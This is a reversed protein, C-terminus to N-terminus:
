RITITVPDIGPADGIVIGAHITYTGPPVATEGLTLQDWTEALQITAGPLIDVHTIVALFVRSDSWRWVEGGNANRVWFDYKQSSAFTLTMPDGSENRLLLQLHIAEGQGYEAKNTSFKASLGQPLDNSKCSFSMTLALILAALACGSQVRKRGKRERKM